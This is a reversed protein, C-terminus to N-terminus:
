IPRHANRLSKKTKKYEELRKRASGLSSLYPNTATEILKTDNKESMLVEVYKKANGLNFFGKPPNDKSLSKKGAFIFIGGGINRFKYGHLQGIPKPLKNKRNM